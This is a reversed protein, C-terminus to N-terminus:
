TGTGTTATDGVVVGEGDSSADRMGEFSCPLTRLSTPGWTISLGPTFIARPLTMDDTVVSDALGVPHLLMVKGLLDLEGSARAPFLVKERNSPVTNVFLKAQSLMDRLNDNDWEMLTLNGTVRGGANIKGIAGAGLQDIEKDIFEEELDLTIGGTTAGLDRAGYKVMMAGGKIDAETLIFGSPTLAM